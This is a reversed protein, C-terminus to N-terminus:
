MNRADCREDDAHYAPMGLLWECLSIMGSSTNICNSRRIILVTINSVHLSTHYIFLYMIFHTLNTIELFSYRSARDVFYLIELRDTQRDTLVVCSPEWAVSSCQFQTAYFLKTLYINIYSTVPSNQFHSPYHSLLNTHNPTNLDPISWSQQTVTGGSQQTVTDGSQQTVTGSSQQTRTGGSQQTRTGGSKEKSSV